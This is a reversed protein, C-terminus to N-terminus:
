LLGETQKNRSGRPIASEANGNIGFNECLLRELKGFIAMVRFAGCTLEQNGEKNKENKSKCNIHQTQGRYGGTNPIREEGLPCLTSRVRGFFCM